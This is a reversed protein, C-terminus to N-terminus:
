CPGIQDCAQRISIRAQFFSTLLFVWISRSGWRFGLVQLGEGAVARGAGSRRGLGLGEEGGGEGGETRALEVRVLNVGGAM